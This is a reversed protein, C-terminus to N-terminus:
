SINSHPVASVSSCGVVHCCVQTGLRCQDITSQDLGTHAPGLAHWSLCSIESCFVIICTCPMSDTTCDVVTHLVSPDRSFLGPACGGRYQLPMSPCSFTATDIHLQTVEMHCLRARTCLAEEWWWGVECLCCVWKSIM